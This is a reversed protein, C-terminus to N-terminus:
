NQYTDIDIHAGIEGLFKVTETEFGIAPMSIGSESSFRLVIELRPTLKFRELAQLLIDKKNILRGVIDSSMQFVDIYDRILNETSLIWSTKRIEYGPSKGKLIVTTPEIELLRTVENPDFEDGDLAFYVRGEHQKPVEDGQELKLM